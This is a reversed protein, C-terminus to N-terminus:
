MLGAERLRPVKGCLGGGVRETARLEGPRVMRVGNGICFQGTVVSRFKAPIMRLDM